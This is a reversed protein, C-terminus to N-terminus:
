VAFSIRCDVTIERVLPRNKEVAEVHRSGGGVVAEWRRRGGDRERLDMGAGRRGGEGEEQQEGEGEEM